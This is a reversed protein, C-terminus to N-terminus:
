PALSVSQLGSWELRFPKVGATIDHNAAHGVSCQGYRRLLTFDEQSSSLVHM